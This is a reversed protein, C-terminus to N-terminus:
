TETNERVLLRATDSGCARIRFPVGDVMCLADPVLEELPPHLLQVKSFRRGDALWAVARVHQKEALVHIAEVREGPPQTDAPAHNSAARWEPDDAPATFWPAAM